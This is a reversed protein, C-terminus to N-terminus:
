RRRYTLWRLEVPAKGLPLSFIDGGQSWAEYWSTPPWAEAPLHEKEYDHMSEDAIRDFPLEQTIFGLEARTYMTSWLAQSAQRAMDDPKYGDTTCFVTVLVLGGPALVEALKTFLERMEHAYQFHSTVEVIVALKYHAKKLSVDWSAIRAQVVELPLKEATAATRMDDAMKEVPEVATTPHGLRALPISNRGNGAGIDLIPTSKPDGLERAVAVVKADPVRGFLPATQDSGWQTFVEELLQVKATIFYEIGPHPPRRTEYRVSLRSYPSDKYGRDLEVQLAKRLQVIEDESFGRGVLSFFSALKQTYHEFMTPICPFEIEGQSTIRRDFRRLLAPKLASVSTERVPKTKSIAKKNM